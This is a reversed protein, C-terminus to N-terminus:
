STGEKAEELVLRKRRASPPRFMEVRIRGEMLAVVDDAIREYGSAARRAALPRLRPQRDLIVHPADGGPRGKAGITATLSAGRLFIIPSGGAM